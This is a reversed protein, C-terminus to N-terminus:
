WNGNILAGGDIVLSQGTMYSSQASLLFTVVNAVEGPEGFRAMPIAKLVGAASTNGSAINQRNLRTNIWGPVVANIRIKHPAWEIAITRTM